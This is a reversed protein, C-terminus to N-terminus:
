GLHSSNLRTSKRDPHRSSLPFAHRYGCTILQRSANRLNQQALHHRMNRHTHALVRNFAHDRAAAGFLQTELLPVRHRGDNFRGFHHQHLLLIAGERDRSPDSGRGHPLPAMLTPWLSTTTRPTSHPSSPSTRPCNMWCSFRIPPAFRSAPAAISAITPNFSSSRPKPSVPRMRSPTSAIWRAPKCACNM